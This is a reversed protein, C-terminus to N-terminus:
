IINVTQPNGFLTFSDADNIKVSVIKGLIDEKTDIIVTQNTRAKGKWKNRDRRSKEDVLVEVTKGLFRQNKKKSIEKQLNILEYLRKLKEEEPVEDEFRAAKTGDRVSYRFMFASDFEVTEMIELTKQFDEQYESPFGVIM